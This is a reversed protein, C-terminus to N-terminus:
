LDVGNQNVRELLLSANQGGFGYNNTMLIAPCGKRGRGVIHDLGRCDPDIADPTLNPTPPLLDGAMAALCAAAEMAGAAAITHGFVPKVSSIPVLGEGFVDRVATSEAPDNLGTGTGHANVYGVDRPVLRADRLAHRMAAAAGSGDPRPATVNWGDVSAGYGIVRGYIKAGRQKARSELELVFMAAGEGILFGDRDKHFPKCARVEEVNKTSLAGLLMFSIMGFPHVMSDMGGAIAADAYGDRVMRFADGIAQTSAACAGFHSLSRGRADAIQAVARNVEDTLHRRPSAPRSRDLLTRGLEDLDLTHTEADLYPLFDEELESRSLSSLGTGLVVAIRGAPPRRKHWGADDLARRAAAIGFVSKWDDADAFPRLLPDSRLAIREALSVQAAISTPFMSADFTTVPAAASRGDLVAAAFADFSSGVPSVLGVGTVVVGRDRARIM